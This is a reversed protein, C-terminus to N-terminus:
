AVLRLVPSASVEIGWKPPYSLELPEDSPVFRAKIRTRNSRLDPFRVRSYKDLECFLNQCDIARLPRRDFLLPPKRRIAACGEAQEGVMRMILGPMDRTTAGPFVKCIGREAGPGPVTFEDESFDTLESYNVDIAMQYAMFPGILPFAKLAGYLDRLSAARAVARPLRGRSLMHRVLALHNM